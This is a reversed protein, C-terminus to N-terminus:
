ASLVRVGTRSPGLPLRTHRFITISVITSSWAFGGHIRISFSSATPIRARLRDDRYSCQAVLGRRRVTFFGKALNPSRGIRIFRGAFTFPPLPGACRRRESPRVRCVLWVLGGTTVTPMRNFVKGQNGLFTAYDTGDINIGFISGRQEGPHRVGFLLRGDPMLFPTSNHGLNFTLRGLESGDLKCSYLNSSGPLGDLGEGVFAVPYWPKESVLTYLPSLYRPNRCDGDAAVVRRRGTGDAKMEYIAWAAEASEKASFLVRTGDFSVDPDRAAFLGETLQKISGDRRLLVLRSRGPADVQVQSVVLPVDLKPLAQRATSDARSYSGPGIVVYSVAVLIIARYLRRMALLLLSITM